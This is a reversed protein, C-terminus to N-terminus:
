PPLIRVGDPTVAVEYARFAIMMRVLDGEEFLATGGFDKDSLHAFVIEGEVVVEENRLAKVQVMAGDERIFDVTARYVLLDGPRFCTEHFTIKPIKALVVKKQYASYEGVLLGATQALGEVVLSAPMVPYGCYHDHLHDEALSIAKVAEASTGRVFQTIRDIWFWRM